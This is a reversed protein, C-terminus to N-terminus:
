FEVDEDLLPHTGGNDNGGLVLVDDRELFDHM